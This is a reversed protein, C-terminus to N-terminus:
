LRPAPRSDRRATEENHDEVYIVIDTGCPTCVFNIQHYGGNHTHSREKCDRSCNLCKVKM